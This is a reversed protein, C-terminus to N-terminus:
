LASFDRVPDRLDGTASIRRPGVLHVAAGALGSTRDQEAARSWAPLRPWQSLGLRRDRHRDQRLTV